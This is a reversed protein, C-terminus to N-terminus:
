AVYDFKPKKLSLDKIKLQHYRQRVKHELFNVISLLLPLIYILLLPLPTM